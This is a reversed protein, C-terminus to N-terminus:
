FSAWNRVMAPPAAQPAPPSRSPARWSQLPIEEPTPPLSIWLCLASLRRQGRSSRILKQTPQHQPPKKVGIALCSSKRSVHLLLHRLLLGDLGVPDFWRGPRHRSSGGPCVLECGLGPPCSVVWTALESSKAWSSLSLVVDQDVLVELGLVPAFTGVLLHILDHGITIGSCPLSSQPARPRQLLQSAQPSTM